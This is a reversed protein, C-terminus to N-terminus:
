RRRCAHTACGIVMIEPSQGQEALERYRSQELPLRSTLFDRYGEILRDPFSM